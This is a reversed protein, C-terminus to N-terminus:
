TRTRNRCFIFTFLFCCLAGSSPEPVAAGRFVFMNQSPFPGSHSVFTDIFQFSDSDYRNIINQAFDGVYLNGDLGIQLGQPRVLGSIPDDIYAGDAGYRKISGTLASAVLLEGNDLFLIDLPANLGGSGSSVFEGLFTGNPDYKNISNTDFSSVFLNNDADFEQGDPGGISVFQDVFQGNNADFRYVQGDTGFEFDSVFLFGNHFNIEGPFELGPASAFVDMFDGSPDFRLIQNTGDSSVYVNGDPGIAVGQPSSLGGAGPTLFNGLSAGTVADFRLVTNQAPSAVLIDQQSVANTNPLLSWCILCLGVLPKRICSFAKSAYIWNENLSASPYNPVMM